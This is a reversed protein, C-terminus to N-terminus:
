SSSSTTFKRFEVIDSASYLPSLQLSTSVVRPVKFTLLDEINWESELRYRLGQRTIGIKRAWQAITKKERNAEICRNTRKNNAQELMTTWKCNYPEYNGNVDIRELTLQEEYGNSLAWEMFPLFNEWEEYYTIGRAGYNKYDKNEERCCREKMRSWIRYLRSNSTRHTAMKKNRNVTIETHLCGCSKATGFYLCTGYVVIEKGCDCICEWLYRDKPKKDTKRIITLRGFKKGTIDRDM